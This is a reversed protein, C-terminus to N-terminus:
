KDGDTNDPIMSVLLAVSMVECGFVKELASIIRGAYEVQEAYGNLGHTKVAVEIGHKGNRSAETAEIVVSKKAPKPAEPKSAAEWKSAGRCISCPMEDLEKPYHKCDSCLKM